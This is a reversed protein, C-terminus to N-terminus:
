LILRGIGRRADRRMRVNGTPQRLSDSRSKGGIAVAHVKELTPRSMGVAEAVKDVAQMPSPKHIPASFKEAGIPISSLPTKSEKNRLSEGAKAQSAALREEAAKKELPRIADALSAAETPTFDKRCRNEDREALLAKHVDDLNRAVTVPVETWGMRKVAALRREGAILEGHFLRLVQAIQDATARSRRHDEVPIPLDTALLRLRDRRPEAHTRSQKELEDSRLLIAIPEEASAAGMM